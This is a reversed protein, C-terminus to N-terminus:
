KSKIENNIINRVLELRNEVSGTITFFRVNDEQLFQYIYKDISKRYEEDTSRTNDDVVPFEIPTYLYICNQKNTNNWNKLKSLQKDYNDKDIKGQEHLYRSFAVVDTLGRDGIIDYSINEDLKRKLTDFILQQSEQNGQKNLAINNNTKLDRAINTVLKFDPLEEVIRKLLTTKGTGQAGTFLFISM